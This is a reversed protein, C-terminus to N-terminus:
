CDSGAEFGRASYTFSQLLPLVTSPPQLATLWECDPDIRESFSQYIDLERLNRLSHLHRLEAAPLQTCYGLWLTSLQSILPPQALFSLSDIGLNDLQLSQLRPLRPLVDALHAATLGHWGIM